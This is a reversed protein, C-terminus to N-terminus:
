AMTVLFTMATVFGMGSVVATIVNVAKAAFYSPDAANPYAPQSRYIKLNRNRRNHKMKPDEKQKNIRLVTYLYHLGIFRVLQIKNSFINALGM